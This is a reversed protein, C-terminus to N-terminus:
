ISASTERVQTGLRVEDQLALLIGALKGSLLKSLRRHAPQAVIYCFVRNLGPAPVDEITFTDLLIDISGDLLDYTKSNSRGM